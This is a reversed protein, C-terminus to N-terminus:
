EDKHQKIYNRAAPADECNPCLDLFKRYYRVARSPEENIEYCTALGLMVDSSSDNIKRAKSFLKIAQSIREMDVLCFGTEVLAAVNDPEADIAKKAYKVAQSAKDSLRLRKSKALLSKVDGAPAEAHTPAKAEPKKPEPKVEEKVAPVAAQLDKLIKAAMAHDPNAATLSQLARVAADPNNQKLYAMALFYYPAVFGKKRQIAQQLLPIAAVVATDSDEGLLLVGRMFGTIAADRGPMQELKDLYSRADGTNGTAVDLHVFASVVAVEGMSGALSYAKNAATQAAKTSENTVKIAENILPTLANAKATLANVTATDEGADAIQSRLADYKIKYYRAFMDNSVSQLSLVEAKTGFAEVSDPSLGIAADCAGAAKNLHLNGGLLYLQRAQALDNQAVPDIAPGLIFSFTKKFSRQDMGYWAGLGAAIAIILFAIIWKTKGSKIKDYEDWFEDDDAPAAAASMASGTVAKAASVTPTPAPQVPQPAPAAPQPPPTHVPQQVPQQVLQAPQQPQTYTPQQPQAPQQPQTYTPQPPQAPQQPQTYTPQVPQAPQQPQTYAPPVTQVPQPPKDYTPQQAPQEPQPPQIYAPQQPPAETVPAVGPLTTRPQGGGSPAMVHPKPPQFSAQPATAMRPRVPQEPAPQQPQEPQVAQYNVLTNPDDTSRVRAQSPLRMPTVETDEDAEFGPSIDTSTQAEKRFQGTGQVQVAKFFPDLEAIDELKIWSVGDETMEDLSFAKREVVWRHLTAMERFPYVKGDPRRLKFRPTNDVRQQLVVPQVMTPHNRPKRAVFVAQCASCQVALGGQPIQSEDMEYTAGCNDCRIQM